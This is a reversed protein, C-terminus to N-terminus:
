RQWVNRKAVVERRVGSRKPGIALAFWGEESALQTVSLGALRPDDGWREPVIPVVRNRSFLKAFMGRLVIQERTRFRKGELRIIGSRELWAHMGDSVPRYDARVRFNFFHHRRKSVRDFSLVVSVKGAGMTTKVADREAFKVEADRPIDRPPKIRGLGLSEIVHQYLDPLPFERGNVDLKELFNRLASHHLQLSVLSDSPAQPRPTHAGLQHRGALRLRLVARKRTTYLDVPTARLQLSALPTLVRRRLRAEVQKIRADAEADLRQRAAAAVKREVQRLAASQSQEHQSVAAARVLSRIVPLADFSTEVDRLDVSGDAEAIAPWVRTGGPTLLILKRAVYSTMGRSSFRAPGSSATTRSHVAGSAELGLRLVDRDPILRVSLRTNTVSRGRIRAGMMIDQVTQSKPRPQPLMRTMMEDRVALRLNANLYHRELDSALDRYSELPSWNLAHIDRAILRAGDADPHQEYREVRCLIHLLDVPAHAWYRMQHDLAALPDQRVFDRQRHTMYSRDLRNLVRRALRQRQTVADPDRREALRSLETWLLFERWQDGQLSGGTLMAIDALCRNLDGPESRLAGLPQQKKALRAAHVSQWVDVRRQLAYRARDFARRVGNETIHSRVDSSAEALSQLRTLVESAENEAVRLPSTLQWLVELVEDVWQDIEEGGHINNLQQVLASPIAWEDGTFAEQPSEGALRDPDVVPLRVAPGTDTRSPRLAIRDPRQNKNNKSGVGVVNEGDSEDGDPDDGDPDDGDPDDGDPDDDDPDLQPAEPIAAPGAGGAIVPGDPSAKALSTRWLGLSAASADSRTPPEARHELSPPDEESCGAGALPLCPDISRRRPSAHVPTRALPSCAAPGFSACPRTPLRDVGTPIMSTRANKLRVLEDILADITVANREGSRWSRPAYLSLVFLCSLAALYPWVRGTTPTRM